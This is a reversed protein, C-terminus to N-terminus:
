RIGESYAEEEERNYEIERLFQGLLEDLGMSYDPQLKLREGRDNEIINLIAFFRDRADGSNRGRFDYALDLQNRYLTVGARRAAQRLQAELINILPSWDPMNSHPFGVSFYPSIAGAKIRFVISRLSEIGGRWSLEHDGCILTTHKALVAEQVTWIRSFWPRRMIDQLAEETNTSHMFLWPPEEGKAESMDTFFKLIRFAQGTRETARGLYIVVSKANGYIQDMVSVQHNRELTNEQNICIADVWMLREICSSRVNGLAEFLNKTIFYANDDWNITKLDSTNGWVYSLAEYPPANDPDITILSIKMEDEPKGPHIKLLRIQFEQLPEHRAVNDQAFILNL